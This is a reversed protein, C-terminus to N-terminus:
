NKVSILTAGSGSTFSIPLNRLYLNHIESGSLPKNWVRTKALSANIPGYSGYSGLQVSSFLTGAYPAYSSGIFQGNLHVRAVNNQVSVAVHNWSSSSIGRYSVFLAPMYGDSHAFVKIGNTGVSLGFGHRGTNVGGHTPAFIYNELGTTGDIKGAHNGAVTGTPIAKYPKVWTEMTFNSNYAPAGSSINNGNFRVGSLHQTDVWDDKLTIMHESSWPSILGSESKLRYKVWASGSSANSTITAQSGNSSLSINGSNAWEIESSSGPEDSQVNLTTNNQYEIASGGIVSLNALTGVGQDSENVTISRFFDSNDITQIQKQQCERSQSFNNGFPISDASPLWSMCNFHDGYDVWNEEVTNPQINKDKHVKFIYQSASAYPSASAICLAM